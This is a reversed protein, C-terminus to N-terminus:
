RIKPAKSLDFTLATDGGDGIAAITFDCEEPYITFKARGRDDLESFLEYADENKSTFDPYTILTVSRGRPPHKMDCRYRVKVEWYGGKTRRARADLRRHPLESTTGFISLNPDDLDYDHIVPRDGPPMRFRVQLSPIFQCLLRSPICWALQHESAELAVMAIFSGTQPSWVPAGSFGGRVLQKSDGDMQVRGLADAAHLFGRASIGEADGEPFGMVYYTKGAHRLPAAFEMPAIALSFGNENKSLELLAVDAAAAHGKGLRVVRAQVMPRGTVGALRVSVRKGLVKNRSAPTDRAPLGFASYVVHRCTLVTREDILSGAGVAIRDQNHIAVVRATEPDTIRLQRVSVRRATRARAVTKGM